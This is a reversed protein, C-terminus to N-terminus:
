ERRTEAEIWKLFDPNGDSIPIAVVCPCEYGHLAKVAAIVEPVRERTTKLLLVAEEAEHVAGDWWYISQMPAVINACACLRSTVLERGIRAAEAADSATVYILFPASLATNDTTPM